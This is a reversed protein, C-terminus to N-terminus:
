PAEKQEDSIKNERRFEYSANLIYQYFTPTTSLQLFSFTPRYRIMFTDLNKGELHTVRKVLNKNFRYSIYSEQEQELVRAQLHQLQKNRKFRFINIFEDLDLGPTGSYPSSNTSIGPKSYNFAKSYEERNTISDQQYSKSFVRVEKLTRFKETLTIHLSIDFSNPADIKKVSFWNTAKNHYIFTLSDKDNAAIAYRGLSDTLTVMGNTSKVTVGKVPITRSSDYVTGSITHQAAVSGALLTLLLLLCYTKLQHYL